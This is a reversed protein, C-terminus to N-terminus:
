RDVRKAASTALEALSDTSLVAWDHLLKRAEQTNVQALLGVLRQYRRRTAENDVLRDLLRTLRQRAEASDNGILAKKLHPVTGKGLKALESEAAERVSFDPAGLQPILMAVREADVESKPQVNKSLLKVTEEPRDALSWFARDAAVADNGTLDTWLVALDKQPSKLPRTDWLYGVGNASALLAGGDRGFEVTYVHGGM